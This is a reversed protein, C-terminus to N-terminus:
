RLAACTPENARVSATVAQLQTALAAVGAPIAVCTTLDGCSGGVEVQKGDITIRLVAGDVPRADQGYTVPAAAKAATVDANNLANAVLTQAAADLRASCHGGTAGPDAMPTRTLTFSVCGDLESSDEYAVLGGNMGWVIKLAPCNPVTGADAAESGGDALGGDSVGGDTSGSTAGACAACAFALVFL